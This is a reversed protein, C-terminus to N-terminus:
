SRWRRELEQQRALDNARLERVYVDGPPLYPAAGAAAHVGARFRALREARDDVEQKLYHDLAERILDSKTRGQAAAREALAASQAEDLYIQTRKVIYL